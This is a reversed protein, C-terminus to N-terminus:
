ALTGGCYVCAGINPDDTKRPAGCSTCKMQSLGAKAAGAYYSPTTARANAFISSTTIAPSVRSLYERMGEDVLSSLRRALRQEEDGVDMTRWEAHARDHLATLAWRVEIPAAGGRRKPGDTFHKQREEQSLSAVGLERLLGDWARTAKADGLPPCTSAVDLVCAAQRELWDSIAM